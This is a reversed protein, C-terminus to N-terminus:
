KELKHDWDLKFERGCEWCKGTPNASVNEAGCVCVFHYAGGGTRIKRPLATHCCPCTVTETIEPM